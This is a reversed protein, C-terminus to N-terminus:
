CGQLWATRDARPGSCGRDRCMLTDGDCAAGQCSRRLPKAAGEFLYLAKTVAKLPWVAGLDALAALLHLEAKLRRLEASAAETAGAGVAATRALLDELREDPDSALLAALRAPDRRALGALYPSAGFVPELAPWAAAIEPPGGLIERTRNAAKADLVPGCPRMRGGLARQAFSHVDGIDM